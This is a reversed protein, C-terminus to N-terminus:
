KFRKNFFATAFHVLEKTSLLYSTANGIKAEAVKGLSVFKKGILPFYTSNDNAMDTVEVWKKHGGELIQYHSKTLRPHNSKSEGFHLMTCRNFGVGLLLIKFDHMYVKEYPTNVGESLELQHTGVVEKALPGHACVSSIPHNSRLTGEWKRFTEPIVGMTTPTYSVNFLPIEEAVKTRGGELMRDNELVPLLCDPTAAPMVITGQSGLLEILAEIVTSAGGLVWGIQGLSSHVMINMGSRVGLRKFDSKLDKKELTLNNM